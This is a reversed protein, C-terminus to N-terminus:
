GVLGMMIGVVRKSLGIAEGDCSELECGEGRRLTGGGFGGNTKGERGAEDPEDKGLFM